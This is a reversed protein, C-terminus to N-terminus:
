DGTGRAVSEPSTLVRGCETWVPVNPLPEADDRRGRISYHQHRGDNFEKWTFGAAHLAARIYRHTDPHVNLTDAVVELYSTPTKHTKIKTGNEGRKALTINFRTFTGKLTARMQTTDM